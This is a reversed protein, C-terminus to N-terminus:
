LSESGPTRNTISPISLRPRSKLAVLSLMFTMLCVVDLWLSTTRAFVVPLVPNYLVAMAAFGAAWIYSRTRFAQTAVVVATVCVFIDLLVQYSGSPHPLVGLLLAAVAVLKVIKTLMSFRM